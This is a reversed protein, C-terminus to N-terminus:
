ILLFLMDGYGVTSMTVIGWWMTDPISQFQHDSGDAYQYKGNKLTSISIESFYVFAGFFIICNLLMVLLLAVGDKSKDFADFMMRVQKLHKSAKLIRLVRFVRVIRVVRLFAANSEGGLILEIYFPLIAILDILWGVSVLFRPLRKVDPCSVVKLLYELTFIIVFFLEFGFFINKKENTNNLEHVSELVLQLVSGFILINIVLNLQKALKSYSPDTLTGFIKKRHSLSKSDEERPQM